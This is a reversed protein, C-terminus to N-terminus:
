YRAEPGHSQRRQEMRQALEKNSDIERLMAQTDRHAKNLFDESVKGRNTNGPAHPNYDFPGPTSEVVPGKGTGRKCFLRTLM